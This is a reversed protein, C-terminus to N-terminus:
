FKEPNFKWIEMPNRGTFENYRLVFIENDKTWSLANDGRFNGKFSNKRKWSYDTLSVEWMDIRSDFLGLYVKDGIVQAIGNRGFPGPNDEVADWSESAQDFRFLINQEGLYYAEGEYIFDVLEPSAEFVRGDVISWNKEIRDYKFVDRNVRGNEDFGGFLYLFDGLTYALGSRIAEPLDTERLIMGDEYKYLARSNAINGGRDTSGSGFYPWSAFADILFGGPYDLRTWTDAEKDYLHIENNLNMNFLRDGLGFVAFRDNEMMFNERVILDEPSFTGVLEWLGIVYEFDQDFEVRIGQSVVAIKVFQSDFGSPITARIVSEGKIDIVQAERDGFFVKTDNTFNAGIISIREGVNAIAPDFSTVSPQLTTFEETTSLITEGAVEIFSAYWYRTDPVLNNLDGVFRGPRTRTGLEIRQASSLSEDTSIVFGHNVVDVAVRSLIRGTLVVQEASLYVVDESIM